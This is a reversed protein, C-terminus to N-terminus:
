WANEDNCNPLHEIPKQYCADLSDIGAGFQLLLSVIPANMKSAAMGLPTMGSFGSPQNITKDAGCELLLRAMNINGKEVSWMLPTDGEAGTVNPDAGAGLLLHAIEIQNRFLAMLLPTVNKNTDWANVDEGHRILMIVLDLSGGEDVANIAHQLDSWGGIERPISDNFSSTEISGPLSVNDSECLM